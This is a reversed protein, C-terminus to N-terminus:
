DTAVTGEKAKLAAQCKACTGTMAMLEDDSLNFRNEASQIPGELTYSLWGELLEGGPGAKVDVTADPNKANMISNDYTATVTVVTGKPAELPEMMVYRFHLMSDWHGIALIEQEKGGPFKVSATISKGRLRVVPNLSVIHGDRPFTFSGSAMTNDNGAPITFSDNGMRDVLVEKTISGPDKAFKIGFQSEAPFEEWGAEKLYFVRVKVTEGKKLRFAHGEPLQITGNGSHYSGLPGADVELTLYADPKIETAVIWKDEDFSTEIEYEAVHEAIDEALTQEPITFVHDPEGMAWEGIEMAYPEDGPPFGADIWQLLLDKEAPSLRKSNAFAYQAGAPWPPMTNQTIHTKMNKKWQRVQGVTTFPMPATGGVRHCEVCRREVLKGIPDGWTPEGNFDALWGTAKAVQVPEPTAVVPEPTAAIPTPPPGGLNIAGEVPSSAGETYIPTGMLNYAKTARVKLRELARPFDEDTKTDNCFQCCSEWSLDLMTWKINGGPSIEDTVPCWIESMSKTFNFEWRARSHKDAYGAPDTMFVDKSDAKSMGYTVGDYEFTGLAADAAELTVPDLEHSKQQESVKVKDLMVADPPLQAMALGAAFVAVMSLVITRTIM